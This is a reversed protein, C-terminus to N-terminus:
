RRLVEIEPGTSSAHFEKHAGRRSTVYTADVHLIYKGPAPPAKVRGRLIYSDGERREPELAFVGVKKDGKLFTVTLFTPLRDKASGTLRVVCDIKERIIVSTRGPPHVIEIGLQSPPLGVTDAREEVEVVRGLEFPRSPPGNGGCGCWVVSQLLCFASLRRHLM